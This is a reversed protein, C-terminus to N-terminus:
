SVCLITAVQFSPDQLGDVIWSLDVFIRSCNGNTQASATYDQFMKIGKPLFSLVM